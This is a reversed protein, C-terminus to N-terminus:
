FRWYEGSKFWQLLKALGSSFSYFHILTHTNRSGLYPNQRMVPICVRCRQSHCLLLVLFLLKKKKLPFNWLDLFIDRTQDLKLSAKPSLFAKSSCLLHAQISRSSKKWCLVGRSNLVWLVENSIDSNILPFCCYSNFKRINPFHKRILPKCSKWVWSLLWPDKEFPFVPANM